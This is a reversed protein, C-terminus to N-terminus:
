GGSRTAKSDEGRWFATCAVDAPSRTSSPSRGRRKRPSGSWSRAKTSSLTDEIASDALDRDVGRRLLESRIRYRSQGGALLRARAFQRAFAADDIYGLRTLRVLAETIAPAPVHLRTLRRHLEKESRARHALLLLARDMARVVAAENELATRGGTAITSGVHLDHRVAYELSVLITEDGIDIEVRDSNRKHPRIATIPQSHPPSDAEPV